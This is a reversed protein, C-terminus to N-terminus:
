NCFQPQVSPRCRSGSWWSKKTFPIISIPDCSSQGLQGGVSLRRIEVEQTALIVLILQWHRLGAEFKHDEQKLRRFAPIVPTFWWAGSL